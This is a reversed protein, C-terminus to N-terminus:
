DQHFYIRFKQDWIDSNLAGVHRDIITGKKSILFTEPAGYVGLDIGLDGSSDFINFKFPDKKRKLYDIAKKRSDKYNIGYIPVGKNNSLELLFPHEVACAACWTAWVNILAPLDKLDKNEIVLEPDKLSPLEFVPIEKGILASTLDNKDENLLVFLYVLLICFILLPVVNLIKRM